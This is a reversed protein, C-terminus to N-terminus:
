YFFSERASSRDQTNGIDAKAKGIRATLHEIGNEQVVADLRPQVEGDYVGFFELAVGANGFFLALEGLIQEPIPSFIGDSSKRSVKSHPLRGRFDRPLPQGQHFPQRLVDNL